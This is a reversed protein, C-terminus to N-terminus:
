AIRMGCQGVKFRGINANIVASLRDDYLANLTLATNFGSRGAYAMIANFFHIAERITSYIALTEESLNKASFCDNFSGEAAYVLRCPEYNLMLSNKITRILRTFSVVDLANYDEFSKGVCSSLEVLATEIGAWYEVGDGKWWNLGDSTSEPFFRVYLLNSDVKIKGCFEDGKDECFNDVLKYFGERYKLYNSFRNNSVAEAYQKQGVQIQLFAEKSRQVAAVVAVLPLASGAMALPVKYLDFFNNVCRAALCLVGLQSNVYILCGVVLASVVPVVLVVWFMVTQSLPKHPVFDDM